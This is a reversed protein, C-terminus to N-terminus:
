LRRWKKGYLSSGGINWRESRRDATKIGSAEYSKSLITSTMGWKDAPAPTAIRKGSREAAVNVIRRTGEQNSNYFGNVDEDHWGLRRTHKVVTGAVPSVPAL